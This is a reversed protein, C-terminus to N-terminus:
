MHRGHQQNAAADIVKQQDHVRRDVHDDVNAKAVLKSRLQLKEEKFRCALSVALSM